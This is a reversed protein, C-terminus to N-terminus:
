AIVVEPAIWTSKDFMELLGLLRQDEGDVSVGLRNHLIGLRILAQEIDGGLRVQELSDALPNLIYLLTAHARRPLRQFQKTAFM